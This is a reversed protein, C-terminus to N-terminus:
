PLFIRIGTATCFTDPYIILQKRLQIAPDCNEIVVASAGGGGNCIGACGYRGEKAATCVLPHDPHPVSCGIPHGISVAGGYVNTQEHTINLDKMNALAVVSFAENIEFYDVDSIQLGAQAIAKPMAKAPTTTFWEPAQQADAMGAIRALPKIGLEEAKDRSM